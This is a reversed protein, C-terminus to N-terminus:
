ESQQSMKRMMKIVAGDVERARNIIEYIIVM